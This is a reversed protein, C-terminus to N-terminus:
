GEQFPGIVDQLTDEPPPAPTLTDYMPNLEKVNLNVAVVWADEYGVGRARGLYSEAEYRDAFSGVRLKFYPVEYDLYVPRDFIEEAVKRAKQAEGYLKSTFLQVRYVQDGVQLADTSDSAQASQGGITTTATDSDSRDPTGISADSPYEAPVITLDEELEIPDFREPVEGRDPDAGSEDGKGSGGICGLCFVLLAGLAVISFISTPKKM